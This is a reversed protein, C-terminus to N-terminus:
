ILLKRGKQKKGGMRRPQNIENHNIAQNKDSRAPSYLSLKIHFIFNDLERTNLEPHEWDLAKYEDTQRQKATLKLFHKYNSSKTSIEILEPNYRITNAILLTKENSVEIYM